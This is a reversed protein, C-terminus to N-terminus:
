ITKTQSSVMNVAERPLGVYIGGYNRKKDDETVSEEMVDKAAGAPRRGACMSTTTSNGCVM